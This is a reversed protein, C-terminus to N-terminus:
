DWVKWNWAFGNEPGRFHPASAASPRAASTMMSARQAVRLQRWRRRLRLVRHFCHGAKTCCPQGRTKPMAGASLYQIAGHVDESQRWGCARLTLSPSGAWSGTDKNGVKVWGSCDSITHQPICNEITQSVAKKQKLTHYVAGFFYGHNAHKSGIFHMDLRTVSWAIARLQLAEQRGHQLRCQRLHQRQGDIRQPKPSFKPPLIWFSFPSKQPNAGPNIWVIQHDPCPSFKLRLPCSKTWQKASVAFNWPAAIKVCVFTRIVPAKLSTADM